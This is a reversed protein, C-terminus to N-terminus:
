AARQAYRRQMQEPLVPHYDRLLECAEHNAQKIDLLVDSRRHGHILLCAENATIEGAAADCITRGWKQILRDFAKKLDVRRIISTENERRQEHYEAQTDRLPLEKSNMMEIRRQADIKVSRAILRSLGRTLERRTKEYFRLAREECDQKYDRQSNALADLREHSM